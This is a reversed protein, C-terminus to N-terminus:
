RKAVFDAVGLAADLGVRGQEGAVLAAHEGFRRHLIHGVLHNHLNAHVKVVTVCSCEHQWLPATLAFVAFLGIVKGVEVHVGIALANRGPESDCDHVGRKSSFKADNPGVSPGIGVIGQKAVLRGVSKSLANSSRLAVSVQNSHRDHANIYAIVNGDVAAVANPDAGHDV